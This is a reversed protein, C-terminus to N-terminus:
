PLYFQLWQVFILYCAGVVGAAIAVAIPLDHRLRPSLMATLGVIFVASAVLFGVLKLAVLYLVFVGLTLLRKSGVARRWYGPPFHAAPAPLFTTALLRLSLAVLLAITLYPFMRNSTLTVATDEIKTAQILGGFCILLILIASVRNATKM